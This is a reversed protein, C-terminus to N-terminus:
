AVHSEDQGRAPDRQGGCPLSSTPESGQRVTSTGSATSGLRELRWLEDEFCDVSPYGVSYVLPEWVKQGVVWFFHFFILEHGLSLRARLTCRLFHSLQYVGRSGWFVAGRDPTQSVGPIFWNSYWVFFRFFFRLQYNIKRRSFGAFKM